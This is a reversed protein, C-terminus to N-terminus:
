SYRWGTMNHLRFCYSKSSTAPVLDVLLYGFSTSIGIRQNMNMLIPAMHLPCSKSHSESTQKLIKAYCRWIHQLKRGLHIHYSGSRFSDCLFEPFSPHLFRIGHGIAQEPSPYALVSSLHRMAVYARHQELGLINTVTLFDLGGKNLNDMPPIQQLIYYGMISTADVLADKPVNSMIQTYMLDLPQFHTPKTQSHPLKRPWTQSGDFFELFDRLRSVPNTGTIYEILASAFSFFGSSANVLKTFDSDSLWHSSPPILDPYAKRIKAFEARLYLEVDELADQSDLLIEREWLGVVSEKVTLFSTKLHTELRSSIIWLLPASQPHFLVSDRILDVLRCRDAESGCKDLDDIIIVWRRSATISGNSFPRIFLRKFQEDISKSLVAPDYAMEDEIINRYKPDAIAFGYALSTLIKKPNDKGSLFLATSVVNPSQIEALSQMIASKGSGAPGHFWIVRTTKDRIRDDFDQLIRTRTGPHCRPPPDRDSSDHRAGLIVHELMDKLGQIAGETLSVRPVCSVCSSSVMGGPSLVMPPCTGCGKTSSINLFLVLMISPNSIRHKRRPIAQHFVNKILVNGYFGFFNTGQGGSTLLRHPKSTDSTEELRDQSHM